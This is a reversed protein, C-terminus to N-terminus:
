IRAHAPARFKSWRCDLNCCKPVLNISRDAGLLIIIPLNVSGNVTFWKCAVIDVFQLLSRKNQDENENLKLEQQENRKTNNKAQFHTMYVVYLVFAFLVM